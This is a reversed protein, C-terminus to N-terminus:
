HIWDGATDRTPSTTPTEDDESIDGSISATIELDGNGFSASSLLFPSPTTDPEIPFPRPRPPITTGSLISRLRARAHQTSSYVQYPPEQAVFSHVTLPPSKSLLSDKPAFDSLPHTAAVSSPQRWQKLNDAASSAVQSASPVLGPPAVRKRRGRSVIGQKHKSLSGNDAVPIITGDPHDSSEFYPVDTSHQISSESGQSPESHFLGKIPSRSRSGDRHRRTSSQPLSTTLHPM